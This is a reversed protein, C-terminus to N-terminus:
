RFSIQKAVSGTLPSVICKAFDNRAFSAVERTFRDIYELPTLDDLAVFYLLEPREPIHAEVDLFTLNNTDNGAVAGSLARKELHQAADRLRCFSPNQNSATDGAQKLDPRPKMGLERTALVDEEVASNKPHRLPLDALPKLFDNCEGLHLAKEIRRH